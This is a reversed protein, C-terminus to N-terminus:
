RRGRVAVWLGAIISSGGMVALVTPIEALFIAAVVTSTVPVMLLGMSVLTASFGGLALNWGGHGVLQAVLALTILWLYAQPTHNALSQGALPLVLLLWLSAIGFVLM